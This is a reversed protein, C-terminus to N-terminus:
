EDVSVIMEALLYMINDGIEQDANNYRISLTSYERTIDEQTLATVGSPFTYGNLFRSPESNLKTLLENSYSNTTIAEDGEGSTEEVTKTDCVATRSESDRLVAEGLTEPWIWHIKVEYPLLNGENDKEFTIKETISDDILKSYKTNTLDDPNDNLGHYRFFLIHGDIYGMIATDEASDTMKVPTPLAEYNPNGNVVPYQKKYPTVNLKFTLDLSARDHPVIWFHLVGSSGPKIGLQDQTKGTAYNNAEYDDTVLWQIKQQSGTTLLTGTAESIKTYGAEGTPLYSDANGASGQTKLEFPTNVATMQVGSGEVERNMTFWAISSFALVAAMIGVMAVMKIYSMRRMKKLEDQSMNEKM